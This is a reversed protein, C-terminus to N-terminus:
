SRAPHARQLKMSNYQISSAAWENLEACWEDAFSCDGHGEMDPTGLTYHAIMPGCEPVPDIDVLHNWAPDLEGIESDDLWHMAHLDRGPRTNVAELTLRKNAPHECNWIMVSSWLKRRYPVQLQGDMKVGSVDPMEKHKVCYVAKSTDLEAFLHMLNGMVLVDCDMFLAWGEKHLFPILFRTIAFETSMPADSIPDWLIARGTPGPRKQVERRYFGTDRLQDLVLGRIPLMRNSRKRASYKAVAFAATERSDFGIWVSRKDM